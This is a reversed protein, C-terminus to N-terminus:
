CVEANNLSQKAGRLVKLEHGQVDLKLFDPLAMNNTGLLSDLTKAIVSYYAEGAKMSEIVHSATENETFLIEDGENASLLAIEYTVNSYKACIDKLFHEKNKQAEIMLVKSNPFVELVEITWQGHYAGIDIIVPPNFGILKLNELSWHLGPVGLKEKIKRKFKQPFLTKIFKM